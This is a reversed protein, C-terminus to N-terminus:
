ALEAVAAEEGESVTICWRGNHFCGLDAEELESPLKLLELFCALLLKGLLEEEAAVGRSELEEKSTFFAGLTDTGLTEM